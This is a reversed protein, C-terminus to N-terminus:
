FNVNISTCLGHVVTRQIRYAQSTSMFQMCKNFLSKHQDCVVETIYMEIIWRKIIEMTWQTDGFPEIKEQSIDTLKQTWFSLNPCNKKIKKSHLEIQICKFFTWLKINLFEILLSINKADLFNMIEWWSTWEKFKVFDRFSVRFIVTLFISLYLSFVSFKIHKPGSYTWKTELLFNV